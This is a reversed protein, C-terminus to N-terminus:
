AVELRKFLEADNRLVWALGDEVERRREAGSLEADRQEEGTVPIMRGPSVTPWRGSGPLAKSKMGGTWCVSFGPLQWLLRWRFVAM